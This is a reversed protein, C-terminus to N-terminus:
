FTPLASLNDKTTANADTTLFGGSVRVDQGEVNKGGQNLVTKFTVKGSSILEVIFQRSNNSGVPDFPSARHTKVWDIHKNTSDYRVASIYFDTM